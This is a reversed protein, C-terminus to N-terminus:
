TKTSATSSSPSTSTQSRSCRTKRSSCTTRSSIETSSVMDTSSLSAQSSSCLWHSPSMKQPSCRSGCYVGVNQLYAFMETSKFYEMVLYVYGHDSDIYLEYVEIINPHRLMRLNQFEAILQHGPPVLSVIEEDRTRVIKVAFEKQSSVEVCRRVVGATGEGLKNKKEFMKWFGGCIYHVSPLNACQDRISMFGKEEIDLSLKFEPEVDLVV